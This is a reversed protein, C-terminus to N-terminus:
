HTENPQSTPKLVFRVWDTVCMIPTKVTPLCVTQPKYHIQMSDSLKMTQLENMKDYRSSVSLLMVTAAVTQVCTRVVSSYSECSPIQFLGYKMLNVALMILGKRQKKKLGAAGNRHLTPAVEISLCCELRTKKIASAQWALPFHSIFVFILLRFTPAIESSETQFTYRGQPPQQESEASPIFM